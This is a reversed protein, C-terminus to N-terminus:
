KMPEKEAELYGFLFAGAIQYRECDWLHEGCRGVTHWETVTQGTKPVLRERRIRAKMQERYFDPADEPITWTPVRGTRFLHLSDSTMAESVRLLVCSRVASGPLIQTPTGRGNALVVPARVARGKVDLLFGDKAEEGKIANWDYRCCHKYVDDTFHGADIFVCNNAVSHQQQLERLEEWTNVETALFLRSKAGPAWYRIVVWFGRMQVDVTMIAKAGAADWREKIRYEGKGSVIEVSNAERDEWFGALRKLVFEKMLSIDGRKLAQKSEIFEVCFEPLMAFDSTLASWHYSEHDSDPGGSYEGHRNLAYANAESPGHRASCNPCEIYCTSKVLQYNWIGNQKAEPAWKVGGPKTVDDQSWLPVFPSNCKTCRMQWERATGLRFAQHTEDGSESGTSMEIIKRNHRFKATRKHIQALIGPEYLWTEDCFAYRIHKSQTNSQNAPLVLFQMHPFRIAQDRKKHRNAPFLEVVSQCAELTPMIYGEAYEAATAETQSYWVAFGPDNAIIYALCMLGITSKGGASAAVLTQRHCTKRGFDRFPRALWPTHEYSFNGPWPSWAGLKVHEAAWDGPHRTDPPRFARYIESETFNM